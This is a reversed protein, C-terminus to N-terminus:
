PKRTGSGLTGTVSGVAASGGDTLHERGRDVREAALLAGALDCIASATASAM